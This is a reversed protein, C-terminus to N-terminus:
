FPGRAVNKKNEFLFKSKNVKLFTTQQIKNDSLDLQNASLEATLHHYFNVNRPCFKMLFFSLRKVVKISLSRCVM